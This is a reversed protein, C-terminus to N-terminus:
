QAGVRERSYAAHEGARCQRASPAAAIMDPIGCGVRAPLMAVGRATFPVLM